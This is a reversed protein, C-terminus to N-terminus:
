TMQGIPLRFLAIATGGVCLGYEEDSLELSRYKFLEVPVNSPLDGGYMLRRAGISTVMRRIDGARCWSPELYVNPCEQAVVIAEPTYIAFGAHALIIPLDPYQRARPIVLSPLAFPAGTGTHVMVPIRAEKALAFVIDCVPLHPAVAHAIPHVKVAVFGLEHVCRRFERAYAEEGILPTMSIMGFIRGPHKEALRAIADHTSVPDSGAAPMVISAQIANANMTGILVEESVGMNFIKSFGLHSHADVVM